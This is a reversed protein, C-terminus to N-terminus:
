FFMYIVHLDGAWGVWVLILIVHLDCTFYSGVGGLVLNTILLVHVYCTFQNGVARLALNTM